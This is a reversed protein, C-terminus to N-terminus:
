PALLHDRIRRAAFRVTIDVAQPSFGGIHPTVLVNDHELSYRWLPSASSEPEGVLVDVGVARLRGQELARVLAVEDTLESRSTNVFVAGPRILRILDEGLMGETEPSLNVHLTIFDSTALLQELSVLDIGEGAETVFPDFAQVKMDFARAYRAMWGGLRGLGIIGITSGKLMTGPFLTRDWGGDEVHHIASRLRRACAMLLLWSQEAAPTLDRLVDTQGKLTLLPIGRAELAGADIHSAGTTATSIVRLHPARAILEATIPVRMSADLLAVAGEVAPHLSEVVPEVVILDFEDGLGERAATASDAPGTYVVKPRETM